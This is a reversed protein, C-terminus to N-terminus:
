NWISVPRRIRFCIAIIAKLLQVFWCHLLSTVWVVSQSRLHFCRLWAGLAKQESGMKQFGGKGTGAEGRSECQGRGPLARSM